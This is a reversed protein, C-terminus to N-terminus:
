KKKVYLGPIPNNYMAASIGGSPDENLDEDEDTGSRIARLRRIEEERFAKRESPTANHIKRMVNKNKINAEPNYGGTNNCSAGWDEEDVDGGEEEEPMNNVVTARAMSYERTVNELAKNIPANSSKFTAFTGAVPASRRTVKSTDM